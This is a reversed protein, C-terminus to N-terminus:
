KVKQSLVDPRAETCYCVWRLVLWYGLDLDSITRFNFHAKWCVFSYVIFLIPTQDCRMGVNGATYQQATIPSDLVASVCLCMNMIM